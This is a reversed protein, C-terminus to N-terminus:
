RFAVYWPTRKKVPHLAHWLADPLFLDTQCYGCELVRPSDARISLNAGCNPCGFAVPRQPHGQQAASTISGVPREREAGFLQLAEPEVAM